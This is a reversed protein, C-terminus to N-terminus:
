KPCTFGREGLRTSYMAPPLILGNEHAFGMAPMYALLPCFGVLILGYKSFSAERLRPYFGNCGNAERKIHRLDDHAWEAEVLTFQLLEEYRRLFADALAPSLTWFAFIAHYHFAECCIHRWLFIGFPAECVAGAAEPPFHRKFSPFAPQSGYSPSLLEPISVLFQLAVAGHFVVLVVNDSRM